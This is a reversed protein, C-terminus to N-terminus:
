RKLPVRASLFASVGTADGRFDRNFEHILALGTGLETNRLRTMRFLELAYQVDSSSPEETGDTFFRGRDQRVTRNLSYSSRGRTTYSDWRITSGAAAGVGVAAGLLQGRNTHGQRMVTHIYMSGEGRGTRALHPLQFNILEVTLGTMQEPRLKLTKRFGLGYSRSHDPEQVFDRRDWSHDDRGYEAYLEFGVSPFSWRAFGSVLQNEATTSPDTFEPAGALGQKLIGEFPRIVYSIPIGSAPWPLHFFRIVGLELGPVGKPTFLAVLAAAFRRTGPEVLSVYTAEGGIPSYATQELAGWIVRGHLSGVWINAPRSTGAFAHPFGAANNGLVFPFLELPGLALNATSIGATVPGVDARLTSNGFDVRGYPEDGFRQPRDVVLPLLGDAFGANGSLGNELLDFSANQTMFATPALVLSVPGAQLAVSITASATLGRGAWVPGDNSGYPFSSNGRVEVAFALPRVRRSNTTFATSRTWPHSGIKARLAKSEVPSFGRLSWPYAPVAEAMQLYRLYTEEASNPSIHPFWELSDATGQPGGVVVGDQAASASASYACLGLITSIIVRRFWREINVIRM